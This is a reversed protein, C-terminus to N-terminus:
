AFLAQQQQQQQQTIIPIPFHGAFFLPKGPVEASLGGGGWEGLPKV